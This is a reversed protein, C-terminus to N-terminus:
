RVVLGARMAGLIMVVYQVTHTSVLLGIQTGQAFKGEPNLMHAARHVAHALQEYTISTQSSDDVDYLISWSHSPNYKLHFDIALAPPLSGDTPPFVFDTSTPIM